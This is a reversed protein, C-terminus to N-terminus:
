RITRLFRTVTNSWNWTQLALLTRQQPIRRAIVWSKRWMAIIRNMQILEAAFAPETEPATWEIFHYAKDLLNIIEPPDVSRRTSSSIRAFTAAIQDLRAPLGDQMFPIRLKELEDQDM